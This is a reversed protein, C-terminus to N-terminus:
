LCMFPPSLRNETALRQTLAQLAALFPQCSILRTSVLFGTPPDDGHSAAVLTPASALPLCFCLSEERRTGKIHCRHALTCQPPTHTHAGRTFVGADTERLAQGKLFAVDGRGVRLSLSATRGRIGSIGTFEGSKNHWTTRFAVSGGTCTESGWQVTSEGYALLQGRCIVRTIENVVSCQRAAHSTSQVGSASQATLTWTRNVDNGGM